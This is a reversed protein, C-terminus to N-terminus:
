ETFCESQSRRAVRELTLGLPNDKQAGLLEMARQAFHESMKTDGLGEYSTMLLLNVLIQEALGILDGASNKSVLDIVQEWKNERILFRAAHFLARFSGGNREHRVAELYLRLAEDHKGFRSDLLRAMNPFLASGVWQASGEDGNNLAIAAADHELRLAEDNLGQRYRVLALVNLLRAVVLDDVSKAALGRGILFEAVKISSPDRQLAYLNGLELYVTPSADAGLKEIFDNSFIELACRRLHADTALRALVPALQVRELWDIRPDRVLNAVFEFFHVDPWGNALAAFALPYSTYAYQRADVRLLIKDVYGWGDSPWRDCLDAREASLTDTPANGKPILYERGNPFAVRMLHTRGLEKSSFCEVPTPRAAIETLLTATDSELLGSDRHAPVDSSTFFRARFDSAGPVANEAARRNAVVFRRDFIGLPRDTATPEARGLRAAVLRGLEMAIAETAALSKPSDDLDHVSPWRSDSLAKAQDFPPCVLSLLEFLEDSPGTALWDVVELAFPRRNSRHFTTKM